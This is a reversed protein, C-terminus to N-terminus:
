RNYFTFNTNIPDINFIAYFFYMDMYKVSIWKFKWFYM